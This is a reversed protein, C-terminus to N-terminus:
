EKAEQRALFRRAGREPNLHGLDVLQDAVAGVALMDIIRFDAFHQEVAVSEQRRRDGGVLQM